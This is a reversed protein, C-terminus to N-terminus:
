APIPVIGVSSIEPPLNESPPEGGCIALASEYLDNLALWATVHTEQEVDCPGKANQDCKALKKATEGYAEAAELAAMGAKYCETQEDIPITKMGFLATTEPTVEPASPSEGDCAVLWLAILPVVLLVLAARKM